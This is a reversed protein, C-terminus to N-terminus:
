SPWKALVSEGGFVRDGEKVVMETTAPMFVDVQSGFRILGYRQGQALKDGAKAWCVIRRAILGAIQKVVIEGRSTSVIMTSQENDVHARLDRADLFLGKQYVVSKVEGQAPARQVHGDFVSLFIRVIRWSRYPGEKIISVDVVKGDAPSYIIRDDIVTTRNFDRFFATCFVSLGLALLGPILLFGGIVLLGATVLWLPIIFRWGDSAIPLRM